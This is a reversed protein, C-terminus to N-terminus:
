SQSQQRQGQPCEEPHLRLARGVFEGPRDGHIREHDTLDEIQEVAAVLQVRRQGQLRMEAVLIQRRPNTSDHDQLEEESVCRWELGEELGRRDREPNPWPQEDAAQYKEQDDLRFLQDNTSGTRFRGRRNQRFRSSSCGYTWSLNPCGTDNQSEASMGPAGSIALSRHSM